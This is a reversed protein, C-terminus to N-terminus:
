VSSSFNRNYIQNIGILVLGREYQYKFNLFPLLREANGGTIFIKIDDANLETKLHNLTREIVGLSSTIVGSAISSVTDKGILGKYEEANVEPLQATKSKLSEFMLGIGPAIIGGIFEGSFQIINITTATGFDISLIFTMGNYNEFDNSSKFIAFAGEASCIRDIGLTEFSDYSIKLNFKSNKDILFPTVNISSSLIKSVKETLQPVVSSIAAQEVEKQKVYNKLESLENFFKIEILDDDHFLGTKINTNGIDFALFM